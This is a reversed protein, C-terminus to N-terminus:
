KYKYKNMIKNEQPGILALLCFETRTFNCPEFMLQQAHSDVEANRSHVSANSHEVVPM